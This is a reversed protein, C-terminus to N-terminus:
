SLIRAHLHEYITRDVTKRQRKEECIACTGQVFNTLCKVEKFHLCNLYLWVLLIITPIDTKHAHNVIYPPHSM